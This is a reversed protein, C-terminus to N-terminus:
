AMAMTTMLIEIKSKYRESKGVGPIWSAVFIMAAILTAHPNSVARTPTREQLGTFAKQSM